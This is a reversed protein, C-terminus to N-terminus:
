IVQTLIIKNVYNKNIDWDWNFQPPKARGAWELTDITGTDHMAITIDADKPSIVFSFEPEIVTDLFKISEIIRNNLKQSMKFAQLPEGFM